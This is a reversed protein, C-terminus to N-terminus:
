DEFHVAVNIPVRKTLARWIDPHIWRPKEPTLERRGDLLHAHFGIRTGRYQLFSRRVFVQVIIENYPNFPEKRPEWFPRRRVRVLVVDDLQRIIARLEQTWYYDPRRGESDRQSGPQGLLPWLPVPRRVHDCLSVERTEFRVDRPTYDAAAVPLAELRMDTVTEPM